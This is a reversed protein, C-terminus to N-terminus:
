IELRSNVQTGSGNDSGDRISLGTSGNDQEESSATNDDSEDNSKSKAYKRNQTGSESGSGSSQLPFFDTIM